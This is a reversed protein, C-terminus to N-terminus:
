SKDKHPYIVTASSMGTAFSVHTVVHVYLLSGSEFLVHWHSGGDGNQFFPVLCLILAM